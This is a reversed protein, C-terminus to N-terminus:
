MYEYIGSEASPSVGRGDPTRKNRSRDPERPEAYAGNKEDSGHTPSCGSGVTCLEPWPPSVRARPSPSTRRQNREIRQARPHSSRLMLASQPLHFLGRSPERSSVPRASLLVSPRSPRDTPQGVVNTRRGRCSASAERRKRACAGRRSACFSFPPSARRGLNSSSSGLQPSIALSPSLSLLPHYLRHIPVLNSAAPFIAM